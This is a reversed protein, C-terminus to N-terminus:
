LRGIGDSEAVWGVSFLHKHGTVRLHGSVGSEGAKKMMGGVAGSRICAAASDM